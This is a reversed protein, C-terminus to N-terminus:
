QEDVAFDFDVNKGDVGTVTVTMGLEDGGATLTCRMETGEKGELDGPCDVDDPAKGVTAELQSTLEKELEDEQVTVGQSCGTLLLALAALAPGVLRTTM